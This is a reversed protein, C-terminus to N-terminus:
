RQLKEPSPFYRPDENALQLFRELRGFSHEPGQGDYGHPLFLVLGSRQNWKQGGGAIFQVIIVQATNAFDSFQAEWVVLYDPSTLSYGYEFGM